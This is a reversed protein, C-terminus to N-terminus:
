TRGTEVEADSWLLSDAERSAVPFHLHQSADLPEGTLKADKPRHPKGVEFFFQRPALTAGRSLLSRQRM